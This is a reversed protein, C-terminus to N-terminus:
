YFLELLMRQIEHVEVPGGRNVQHELGEVVSDIGVVDLKDADIVHLKHKGLLRRSDLFKLELILHGASKALKSGVQVHM